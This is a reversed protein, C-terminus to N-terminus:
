TLLNQQNREREGRKSLGSVRKGETMIYLAYPSKERMTHYLQWRSSTIRSYWVVLCTLRTLEMGLMERGGERGGQKETERGGRTSPRTRLHNERM